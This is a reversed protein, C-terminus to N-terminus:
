RNRNRDNPQTGFSGSPAAASSAKNKKKRDLILLVVLTIIAVVLVPIVVYLTQLLSGSDVSGAPAETAAAVTEVKTEAAEQAETVPAETELEPVSVDIEVNEIIEVEKEEQRPQNNDPAPPVIADAPLYILETLNM